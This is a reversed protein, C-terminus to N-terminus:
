GDEGSRERDAAAAEAKADGKATTAIWAVDGMELQDGAARWGEEIQTLATATDVPWPRFRDETTVTGAVALENAFLRGLADIGVDIREETNLELGHLQGNRKVFWDLQTLMVWDDLGAALLEGVVADLVQEPVRGSTM